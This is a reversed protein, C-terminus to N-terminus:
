SGRYTSYGFPGLLLPVHYHGEAAAFEVAVSPYFAEVGRRGFYARTDFVIRYTGAPATLEDPILARVRGDGDTEGGGIRTWTSDDKRELSVAVDAAPRGLAIDLVHTSVTVRGPSAM